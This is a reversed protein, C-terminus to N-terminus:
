GDNFNFYEIANINGQISVAGIYNPQPSFTFLSWTDKENIDWKTELVATKKDSNICVSFSDLPFSLGMAKAKIFSEKRTWCRYFYEVQKDKPVKKLTKIELDSFFNAAIEFIDFDAKVKEIDVGIDFEKVFSLVILDGSHSINFKLDSDFNYEPKGYEGYEFEIEKANRNLYCASLVRLAGRSMIYKNQDKKFHFNSAKEKEAKNIVHKLNDIKHIVDNINIVWIHITKPILEKPKHLLM